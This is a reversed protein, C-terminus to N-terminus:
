SDSGDSIIVIDACAQLKDVLSAMTASFVQEGM